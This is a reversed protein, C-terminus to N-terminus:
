DRSTSIKVSKDDIYCEVWDTEKEQRSITVHFYGTKGYKDWTFAYNVPNDQFNWDLIMNFDYDARLDKSKGTELGEGTWRYNLGTDEASLIELESSMEGKEVTWTGESTCLFTYGNVEYVAGPENLGLGNTIVLMEKDSYKPKIKIVDNSKSASVYKSFWQLERDKGIYSLYMDACQLTGFIRNADGLNRDMVDWAYSKLYEPGFYYDPYGGRLECSFCCLAAFIYLAIKKM